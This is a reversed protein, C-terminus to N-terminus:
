GYRGPQVDSGTPPSTLRGVAAELARLGRHPPGCACGKWTRCPCMEPDDSPMIDGLLARTQDTAIRMRAIYARITPLEASWWAHEKRSRGVRRAAAPSAPGPIESPRPRRPLIM